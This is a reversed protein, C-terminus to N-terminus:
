PTELTASLKALCFPLKYLCEEGEEWGGVFWESDGEKTNMM